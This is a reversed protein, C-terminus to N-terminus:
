STAAPETGDFPRFRRLAATLDDLHVPKSVYDDMGSALCKERDGQMANATLAIIHLHGKWPCDPSRERTRIARTAEYGDMEPMQCDMFIVDYPRDALAALAELGNAVVDATTGALKQLQHRVVKQNVLNDEVLLIRLHSWPRSPGPSVSPAPAAPAIQQAGVLTALRDFLVWQQVPKPLCADIGAVRLEEPTPGPAVASLLILHTSAIAPDSKIEHALRLGDMQPLELDILAFNYPTGAAAAVRLATLADPGNIASGKKMKWHFLQHRLIQRSTTDEEVILVRLNFLAQNIAEVLPSAVAQKEFWATFWFTSGKGPESQVGIEGNMMAVLQRSIVLGLGTGGYRRTTSNDAQSFPQFLNQCSATPIGIGSDAVEVRLMVHTPTEHVMGVRIVVEGRETFKIANGLLNVLIQRLRAPDGRLKEFVGPRIDNNLEIGKGQAQAALMDLTNEITEILDFDIIEFQLKGAEIKSFDLIDNIIHMLSEASLRITDAFERQLEDLETDLLLATMGVVGNMPTRIEHSMNALFMSKVRTAAEATEKAEKLARETRKIDTINKSIGFTGIVRGKNDRFPMKTTLAWTEERGDKWLEHEEKGIMPRGTRIIEQEDEFAPRAHAEDFFDFDTKGVIQDISDVGFQRAQAKSCKIFRSREDKFYIFDPSNDLLARWLDREYALATESKKRETIDRFNLVVGIVRGDLKQPSSYREFFRGDQLEILDLSEGEPRARIEQIRAIYRVPDKTQRANWEVIASDGNSKMMDASIGWMAQYRSNACIRGTAFEVAFIGDASSELTANQLALSSALASEAQKRETIDVVTTLDEIVGDAYIKRQLSFIVWVIRGDSHIYRKEMSFSDIEGSEIKAYLTSQRARDEPATINTWLERGGVAEQKRTIGSIRLHADNIMRQMTGDPQLRNLAIGIPVADFIFKLRMQEKLESAETRKRDTIDLSMGEVGVCRGAADLVPVKVTQIWNRGGPVSQIEETELPRLTRMVVRDDAQYKAALDPPSVELDTRGIVAELTKGVRDLYRRNVFTFRGETDKRFIFVPLNELLAHLFSESLQLERTRAQFRQELEAQTGRLEVLQREITGAMQNFASALDGVEDTSGGVARRDLAGASFDRTTQALARIPAALYRSILPAAIAVLLVVGLALWLELNILERVPAFAEAQDIKVVMGWRFSPLYRWVALVETGRFDTAQGVGYNGQAALQLPLGGPSGFPIHRHFAAEKDHRSPAMFLVGEGERRGVLTDGTVGLGSYDQVIKFVAQNDVQLAVVGILVGKKFIPAAIFAREVDNIPDREFDTIETALLTGVTDFARSLASGALPATRLNFFNETTPQVSFVVDGGRDILLINKYGYADQYRTLYARTEDTAADYAPADGGSKKFADRLQELEVILHSSAALSTADAKREFLYSELRQAKAEAVSQLQRTLQERLGREAHVHSVVGVIMVPLLGILVFCLALKADMRQLRQQIFKIM